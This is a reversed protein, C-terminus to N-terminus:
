TTVMNIDFFLKLTNFDSDSILFDGKLIPLYESSKIIYPTEIEEVDNIKREEILQNFIMYEFTIKNDKMFQDFLVEVNLIYDKIYLFKSFEKYILIELNKSNLNLEDQNSFKIQLAFNCTKADFLNHSSLCFENSEIIQSLNIKEQKSLLYSKTLVIQKYQNILDAYAQQSVQEVDISQKKSIYLNNINKANDSFLVNQILVTSFKNLFTQYSLNDFLLNIGHNFGISARLANLGTGDSGFDFGMINFIEIEDDAIDVPNGMNSIIDNTEFENKGSINGAEGVTIKYFVNVTEQYNVGKIYIVIPKQIDNSFKVIFQKNDNINEENFFSKVEKFQINNVEISISNESINEETIYFREILNSTGTFTTQRILGEVVPVIINNSDIRLAKSSNYYYVNKTLKNTFTSYPPLFLPYGLRSFLKSTISLKLLGKSPIRLIPEFGNQASLNRLSSLHQATLINRERKYIDLRYELNTFMADIGNFMLWFVNTAKQPIRESIYRKLIAPIREM